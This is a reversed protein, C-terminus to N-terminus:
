VREESYNRMFEIVKELASVFLIKHFDSLLSLKEFELASSIIALIGLSIREVRETALSILKEVM